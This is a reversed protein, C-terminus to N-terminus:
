RGKQQNKETDLLQLAKKILDPACRSHFDMNLAKETNSLSKRCVICNNIKTLMNNM